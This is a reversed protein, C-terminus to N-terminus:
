REVPSRPPLSALWSPVRIKRSPPRAPRQRPARTAEPPQRRQPGCCPTWYRIWRIAQRGPSRVRPRAQSKPGPEPLPEPRRDPVPGRRHCYRCGLGPRRAIRGQVRGRAATHGAVPHAHRGAVYGGAMFAGIQQVMTWFVALSAMWTASMGSNPWPSATSLGIAAGFTLLVFSLAAALLAGAIVPGWELFSPVVAASTSRQATPAPGVHTM